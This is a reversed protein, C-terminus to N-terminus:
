FKAEDETKKNYPRKGNKTIGHADAIQRFQELITDKSNESDTAFLLFGIFLQDDLLEANYEIAIKVLEKSREEILVKRKQEIKALRESVPITRARPM